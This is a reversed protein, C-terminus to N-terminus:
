NRRLRGEARSLMKPLDSENMRIRTRYPPLVLNSKLLWSNKTSSRRAIVFDVLMAFHGEDMLGWEGNQLRTPVVTPM